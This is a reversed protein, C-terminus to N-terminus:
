YYTFKGLDQPAITPFYTSIHADQWSHGSKFAVFSLVADNQHCCNVVLLRSNTQVRVRCQTVLEEARELLRRLTENLLSASNWFQSSSKKLALGASKNL